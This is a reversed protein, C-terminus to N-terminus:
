RSLAKIAGELTHIIISWKEEGWESQLSKCRAGIMERFEIFQEPSTFQIAEVVVPKKKYLSM